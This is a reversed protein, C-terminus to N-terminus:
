GKEPQILVKEKLAKTFGKFEEIVIEPNLDFKPKLHAIKDNEYIRNLLAKDELKEMTVFFLKDVSGKSGAYATSMISCYGDYFDMSSHDQKLAYLDYVDRWASRLHLSIIKMGLLSKEDPLRIRGIRDYERSRHFNNDSNLEVKVGDLDM